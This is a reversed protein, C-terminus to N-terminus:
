RGGGRARNSRKTLAQYEVALARIDDKDRIIFTAGNFDFPADQYTTTNYYTNSSSAPRAQRLDLRELTGIVDPVRMNTMDAIQMGNTALRAIEQSAKEVEASMSTIGIAMGKTALEGIEMTARSPSKEQMGDKAAKIAARALKLVANIVESKGDTIGKAMGKAFNKGIDNIDAEGAKLAADMATQMNEAAATADTLFSYEKMGKGIGAAVDTGVPVYKQAPSHSSMATRMADEVDTAVTSADTTWGYGVLGKAIGASIDNGVGMYQDAAKIVDLLPALMAQGTEADIEGSQMAATITAIGEAINDFDAQDLSYLLSTLPLENGTVINELGETPLGTEPDWEQGSEKLEEIKKKAKDIEGLMRSIESVDESQTPMMWGFLGGPQEDMNEQFADVAAKTGIKPPIIIDLTPNGDEDFGGAWIDTPGIKALLEPTLQLKTGNEWVTLIGNDYADKLTKAWGDQFGVNTMVNPKKDPNEAFYADIASQEIGSFDEYRLKAVVEVDSIPPASITIGEAFTVSQITANPISIDDPVNTLTVPAEAQVTLSSPVGTMTVPAEASVTLSKPVGSLTVPADAQVTISKPVNTLTTPTNAPITLPGSPLGTITVPVDADISITDPLDTLTTPATADITISDPLGTLTVPSNADITISDPLNALTVPATADITVSEPLGTLTGNLTFEKNGDLWDKLTQGEPTLAIDVLVRNVEEDVAGLMDSLGTLVGPNDKLYQGVSEYSKLLSDATNGGGLDKGGEGSGQLQKLLAVYSALEGEDLSDTFTKLAEPTTTPDELLGKLTEIDSKANQAAEGQFAEPAYEAVLENYKETADNLDKQHQANLKKLAAAKEDEDSIAQVAEYQTRYSENLADLQTQYGQAGATLADTYLDVGIEAPKGSAEAEAQIRAKEAEVGKKISDYGGGEGTTYDFQIQARLQIIENLRAQDEESLKGNKRKKLLKEVEKDYEDLQKLNEKNTPDTVGLGEQIKARKKIADRIEDSGTAFEDVYSQVIENTEKKGDTWTENLRDLWDKSEDVTGGFDSKSIGFREFPDNGTDYITTAQTEKWKKATEIMSETAERAAKAGSVWDLFKVAGVGLAVTLAIIGVPGLLSSTAALVGKLGGGAAVSTEILKGLGTSFAGVATNLKGIVMIGPGIAAVWAATTLMTQRQSADMESLRGLWEDAVDILDNFKPALDDGLMSGFNTITAKARNTAGEIGSTMTKYAKETAGSSTKMASMAGAFDKQGAESTLALVTNLAEVSGFLESIKETSGGTKEAVDALFEGLGKTQLAAASFDLGMAAAAKSAETTPKLVGSYIAKLGTVAESTGIGQKTLTALSGFLEDTGTKLTAALPIVNGISSALEGFTTKGYNQAMLMQDSVSQMADAGTLGYANMVTTLGDVAVSQDAFGGIAAETAIRIYDLSNATDGNASIMNYLGASIDTAAVGTESSIERVGTKIDDLSMITTDAVTSVKRAATDLQAYAVAAAGGLALIPTTVSLSLTQGIQSLKQGAETARDGFKKLNTAAAEWKAKHTDIARNTKDLESKTAAEAAKAENLATTAKSVADANSQLTRNQATVQGELGKIEEKAAKEAEKMEELSERANNAVASNKGYAKEAAKLSATARDIEAKLGQEGKKAAELKAINAQQTQSNKQLTENAKALAKQFQETVQGQLRLKETLTAAKKAMGATSSAFGEVGASAAKFESEVEKIQNNITKVNKSFNDSQLSLSVVLERLNEAM